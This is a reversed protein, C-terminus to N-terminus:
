GCGNPRFGVKNGLNDHVIELTKQQLNGFISTQSDYENPMFALCYQKPKIEHFTAERPLDVTVGPFVFSMEPIPYHFGSLDYCTDFPIYKPASPYYSMRQQYVSRLKAYISPPLRTLVCGSDIIFGGHDIQNFDLGMLIDGDIAIGTINLAYHSLGAQPNVLPTYQIREDRDADPDPGFTIYGVNDINPICYSFTEMYQSSTQSMFSLEGRGLGFIGATRGFNGKMLIGCGFYFEDTIGPKTPYLNSYLALRDKGFFGRSSSRDGYYIRYHCLHVNKSCSLGQGSSILEECTDDLCDSAEYTSSNLPNFRANAQKYCSKCQYCQTWTLHSGTDFVMQLTKEPTGLRIDIIYNLTSLPPGPNTPITTFSDLDNFSNNKSIRSQIYKVREYDRTFNNENDVNDRKIHSCPGDIHVLELSAKRNVGNKNQTEAM